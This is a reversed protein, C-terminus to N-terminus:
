WKRFARKQKKLLADNFEWSASAIVTQVPITTFLIQFVIFVQVLLNLLNRDQNIKSVM